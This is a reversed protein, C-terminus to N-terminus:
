TDTFTFARRAHDMELVGLQASLGNVMSKVRYSHSIWREQTAVERTHAVAIGGVIGLLVVCAALTGALKARPRTM